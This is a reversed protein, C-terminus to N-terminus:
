PVRIEITSLVNTKTYDWLCMHVTRAGRWMQEFFLLQRNELDWSCLNMAAPKSSTRYLIEGSENRLELPSTEHQQYRRVPFVEGSPSVLCIRTGNEVACAEVGDPISATNGQPYLNRLEEISGKGDFAAEISGQRNPSNIKFQNFRKDGLGATWVYVNRNLVLLNEEAGEITPVSTGFSRTTEVLCSIRGDKLGVRRIVVDRPAVVCGTCAMLTLVATIQSLRQINIPM